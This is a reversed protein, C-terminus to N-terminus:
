WTTVGETDTADGYAEWSDAGQLRLATHLLTNAGATLDAPDSDDAALHGFGDSSRVLIMGVPAARAMVQGDRGSGSPLRIYSHGLDSAAEAIAGRLAPHTTAPPTHTRRALEVTAGTTRAVEAVEATLVREAQAMRALDTDRIEATMGVEGAIVNDLNPDTELAGVTTIDCVKRERALREVALVVRAAVAVADRRLEMPTAGAHARQGKVAVDYLTRGAIGTVIGLPVGARELVPGHEVHLELFAAISGAPWTARQVQDLNGGVSRLPGRISRGARDVTREPKDLAGVVASSGFNPYPFREGVKNAFAIAAPEYRTPCPQRALVSLVAIAAVVGYAGDLWSGGGRDLHSGMLLTPTGPRWCARRIILNGAEDVSPRLGVERSRQALYRRAMADSRGYGVRSATGDPGEGFRALEHLVRMLEDRDICDPRAM